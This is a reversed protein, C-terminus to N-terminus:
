RYLSMRDAYSPTFILIKRDVGGPRVVSRQGGSPSSYMAALTLFFTFAIGDDDLVREALVPRCLFQHIGNDPFFRVYRAEVARSV